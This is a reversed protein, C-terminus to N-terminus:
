LGHYSFISAKVEESVKSAHKEIQERLDPQSCPVYEDRLLNFGNQRAYDLPIDNPWERDIMVGYALTWCRAVAGIDYGGGGMALWPKEFDAFEKVIASFAKSTLQLHTIPDKYHTDIGLQTTIVDPAFAQM